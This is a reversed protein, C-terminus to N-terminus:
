EILHNTMLASAESINENGTAFCGIHIDSGGWCIEYFRSVNQDNYYTATKSSDTESRLVWM